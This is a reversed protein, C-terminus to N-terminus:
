QGAGDTFTMTYTGRRASDAIRVDSLEVYAGTPLRGLVYHKQLRIATREAMTRSKLLEMESELGLNVSGLVSGIRELRSTGSLGLQITAVAQYVAPERLSKWMWFSFVSSAALIVLWKFRWVLLLHERFLHEEKVVVESNM